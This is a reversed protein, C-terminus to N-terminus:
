NTSGRSGIVGDFEVADIGMAESFQRRVAEPQGAQFVFTTYFMRLRPSQMIQQPTHGELLQARDMMPLAVRQNQAPDRITGKADQGAAVREMEEFFRRRIAVIGRDSAGLTEKTRDAIVGQGVWALFDQNMVHTDIWTGDPNKVPGYWTPISTQVYPERGRPVRTYKWMVSLTREDDIPVRWEFHEGLFFGNPWLCVRGITWADDTEDTDEKIRRYVFGHEFEDFELKLHTPGLTTDGTRLRKGWNEHMWEFHVPDISNEQCQFWNCPLESIVVQTFGNPWSFAEWDPLEPVPQPGMYTWLMGGKAQVPYAKIRIRDKTNREPFCTDEFPQSVCRGGADFAWGHYNCRLGNSEVMGYALDARRHACQRDVLGYHGSLDKYLVLDEGMLRVPKTAQADFESVGAIPMWYRRLLEGMPTGAGVQTLQRNKEESLM